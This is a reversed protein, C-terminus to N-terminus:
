GGGAEPVLPQHKEKPNQETEEVELPLEAWSYVSARFALPPCDLSGRSSFVASFGLFFFFGPARCTSLGRGGGLLFGEQVEVM